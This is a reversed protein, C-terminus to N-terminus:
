PRAQRLAPSQLRRPSPRPVGCVGQRVHVPCKPRRLAAPALPVLRAFLWSRLSALLRFTAEHSVLRDAYRGGTRLIAFLRILAAPTFYNMAHTTVGALGMATIFWGSTAMLGINALTAVTSIALSLAIWAWYSRYLGILRILDRM